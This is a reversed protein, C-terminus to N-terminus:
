VWGANNAIFIFIISHRVQQDQAALESMIQEFEKESHVFEARRGMARRGLQLPPEEM